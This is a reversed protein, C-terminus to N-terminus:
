LSVFSTFTSANENVLITLSVKACFREMGLVGFLRIADQRTEVGNDCVMGAVGHVNAYMLMHCKRRPSRQLRVRAGASHAVLKIKGTETSTPIVLVMDGSSTHKYQALLREYASRTSSM